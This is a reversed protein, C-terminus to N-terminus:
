GAQDTRDADQRAPRALRRLWAEQEATEIAGPRARRITRMADEPELGGAILLAAAITGSRGRGARCHVLIKQGARLRQLLRDCREPWSRSFSEDPAEFDGIPANCWRLGAAALRAALDPSGLGALEAPQTLGLVADAGWEAIASAAEAGAPAPGIAIQGPWPGDDISIIPYGSLVSGPHLPRDGARHERAM